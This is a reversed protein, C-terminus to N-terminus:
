RRDKKNIPIGSIGNCEGKDIIDRFRRSAQFQEIVIEEDPMCDFIKTYSQPLEYFKLKTNNVKHERVALELNEQDLKDPHIANYAKWSKLAKFTSESPQLLLTASNLHKYNANIHHFGAAMEIGIDILDNFLLPPQRVIADADLFVVPMNWEYLQQELYDAKYHINKLWSGQNEIGAISYSLNYKNLSEELNKIEEEYGTDKTYFSVVIYDFNDCYIACRNEIIANTM